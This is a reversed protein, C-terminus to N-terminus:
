QPHFHIGIDGDGIAGFLADTLSHLAVDADSHGKLALEGPIFVGLIKM